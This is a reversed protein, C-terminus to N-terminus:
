EGGIVKVAKENEIAMSPVGNFNTVKGTFCVAKGELAEHPAYSFNPISQSFISVTFIQNPFAKDLNLFVNGRGSLKTSVVTGCVTISENKGMYRKAQVTNFHNRPLSTPSLPAADNEAKKGRWAKIDFGSELQHELDDDLAPFFDIGTISELSDISLAYSETPYECLQNPMMFAIARKNQLDLVAKYYYEPISVQNISREVKPLQDHLVPGTIVYLQTEPHNIIYERLLDELLAWSIRNFDPRQPSMNSYFYSESLAKASWRFDASPALHGRDFGFGDYVMTGDAKQTKLFYDQEVASGTIVKPDPRFDNSRGINGAAVDPTIIHAVWKAQEHTESYVLMMAAHEIVTEEPELAPLGIERILYRVRSLKHSELERTYTDREENIRRIAEEIRDIETDYPSSQGIGWFPIGLIIILLLRNLFPTFFAITM